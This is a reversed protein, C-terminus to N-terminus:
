PNESHSYVWYWAVQQCWDLLFNITMDFSRLEVSNALMEKLRSFNIDQEELYHFVVDNKLLGRMHVISQSLDPHWM